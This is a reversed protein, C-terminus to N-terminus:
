ATGKIAHWEAFKYVSFPDEGKYLKKRIPCGFSEGAEKRFLNFLPHSNFVELFSEDFNPSRFGFVKETDLGSLYICPVFLNDATIGCIDRGAVCGTEPEGALLYEEISFDPLVFSKGELNNKKKIEFMKLFLSFYESPKPIIIKKANGIELVLSTSLLIKNDQCYEWVEDFAGLNRKTITFKAQTLIRNKNLRKINANIIDFNIGRTKKYSFGIGDISVQVANVGNAKLQAVVSDTLLFGNTLVGAHLNYGYKGTKKVADYIFPHILPEGGMFLITKVGGKYLWDICKLMEKKKFIKGTKKKDGLYCHKCYFNCETTIEWFVTKPINM